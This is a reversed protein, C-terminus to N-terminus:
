LQPKRIRGGGVVSLLWIMPFAFSYSFFLYILALSLFPLTPRLKILIILMLALFFLGYATLYFGFSSVPHFDENYSSYFYSLKKNEDVISQSVSKVSSHGVGFPSEKFSLCAVYVAYLRYVISRDRFLLEPSSVLKTFTHFGRGLRNFDSNESTVSSISSTFLLIAILGGVFGKKMDLKSVFLAILFVLLYMYGSGSKTLLVMILLLILNTIFQKSSLNKIRFFYINLALMGVLLGGFLGPETSLTSIGRYGFETVNMKRVFLSQISVVASPFILFMASVIFYVKIVFSFLRASFYIYYQYTFLLTTLGLFLAIIKGLQLDVPELPNMYMGGLCVIVIIFVLKSPTKGSTLASILYAILAVGAALPQVDANIPFPSVFPFLAFTFFVNAVIKEFRYKQNEM